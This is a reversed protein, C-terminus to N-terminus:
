PKAETKESQKMEYRHIYARKKDLIPISFMGGTDESEGFFLLFRGPEKPHALVQYDVIYGPLERTEWVMHM